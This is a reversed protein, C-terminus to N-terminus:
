ADYWRNDTTDYFAKGGIGSALPVYGGRGAGDPHPGLWLDSIGLRELDEDTARYGDNALYVNPSERGGKANIHAHWGENNITEAFSGPDEPDQFDASIHKSHGNGNMGSSISQIPDDSIHQQIIPTIKAAIAQATRLDFGLHDLFDIVQDHISSEDQSM